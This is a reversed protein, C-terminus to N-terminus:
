ALEWVLGDAKEDALGAVTGWVPTLWAGVGAANKSEPSELLSFLCFEFWSLFSLWFRVPPTFSYSLVESMASNVGKVGDVLAKVWSARLFELMLGAEPAEFTGDSRTPSQIQRFQM